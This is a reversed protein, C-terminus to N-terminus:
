AALESGSLPSKASRLVEFASAELHQIFQQREGILHDFLNNCDTCPTKGFTNGAWTQLYSQLFSGALAACPLQALQVSTISSPALGIGPPRKM